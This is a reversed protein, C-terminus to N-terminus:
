DFEFAEQYLFTSNMQHVGLVDIKLWISMYFTWGRQCLRSDIPCWYFPRIITHTLYLLEMKLLHACIKVQVLILHVIQIHKAALVSFFSVSGFKHAMGAIVLFTVGFFRICTLVGLPRMIWLAKAFITIQLVEVIFSLGFLSALWKLFLLLGGYSWM